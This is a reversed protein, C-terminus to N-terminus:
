ISDRAHENVSKLVESLIESRKTPEDIGRLKAGMDAVYTWDDGGPTLGNLWARLQSGTDSADLIMNFGAEREEDAELGAGVPGDGSPLREAIGEVPDAKVSQDKRKGRKMTDTRWKRLVRDGMAYKKVSRGDNLTPRNLTEAVRRGMSRDSEWDEGEGKRRRLDDLVIKKLDDHSLDDNGEINELEGEPNMWEGLRRELEDAARELRQPADAAIEAREPDDKFVEVIDWVSVMVPVIPDAEELESLLREDEVAKEEEGLQRWWASRQRVLEIVRPPDNGPTGVLPESGRKRKPGDIVLLPNEEVREAHCDPDEFEARAIYDWVEFYLKGFAARDPRWAGRGALILKGGEIPMTGMIGAFDRMRRALEPVLERCRALRDAGSPRTVKFDRTDVHRYYETRQDPTWVVSYEAKWATGELWRLERITGGGPLTHIVEPNTEPDM